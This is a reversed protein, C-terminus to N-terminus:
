AAGAPSPRGSAGPRVESVDVLVPGATSGEEASQRWAIHRISANHARVTAPVDDGLLQRVYEGCACHEVRITPILDREPLIRLPPYEDFRPAKRLLISM